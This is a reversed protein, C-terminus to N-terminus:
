LDGNGQPFGGVGGDTNGDTGTGNGQRFNDAGNNGSFEGNGGMGGRGGKGGRGGMGGHGGPGTQTLANVPSGNVTVSGGNLAGAGDYDFASQGTIDVTGGNITLSGNSDLADTDGQGMTITVAGDNIEIFPSFQTTKSAANIGDDSADITINGGNIQVGTGEIGEAGSITFTGGDIITYTTGQIGDDGATIAFTGGAIYVYGVSDDDDYESHFADKGASITFNGDSIRISDHAEIADKTASITYTGGTFKLDDKGSIGNATSSITLSGTGNLVLDSKSFVVADLNTTGDANFAGTTSLANDGTSTVFVKDASKVYIAPANKNTITVNDLIIQVKASDAAEVIITADSANGTVLYVGEESITVDQGDTLAIQVASSTDATQALDRDTFLGSTDILTTLATFSSGAASKASATDNDQASAEDTDQASATDTDQAAAADRSQATTQKGASNDADASGAQTVAANDADAEVTQTSVASVNKNETAASLGSQVGYATAGCVVLCLLFVTISKNIKM